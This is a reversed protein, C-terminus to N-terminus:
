YSDVASLVQELDDTVKMFLILAAGDALETDSCSHAFCSIVFPLAM